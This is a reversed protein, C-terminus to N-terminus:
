LRCSLKFLVVEQAISIGRHTGRFGFGDELLTTIYLAEVCRYPLKSLGTTPHRNILHQDLLDGWQMSCFSFAAEELEDISAQPRYEYYVFAYYIISSYKITTNINLERV